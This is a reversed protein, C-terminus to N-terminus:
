KIKRLRRLLTECYDCTGPCYGDLKMQYPNFDYGNSFISHPQHEIVSHLGDNVNGHPAVLLKPLLNIMDELKIFCISKLFKIIMLRQRHGIHDQQIMNQIIPCIDNYMLGYNALIDNVSLEDLIRSPKLVIRPRPKQLKIIEPHYTEQNYLYREYRTNCALKKHEDVTLRVEDETLDICYLSRKNKKENGFNYSGVFRRMMMTSYNDDLRIDLKDILNTMVNRYSLCPIDTKVFVQYGGGTFTYETRYKNTRAFDSLRQLSEWAGEIPINHRIGEKDIFCTELDIDFFLKDVICSEYDVTFYSNGNITYKEELRSYYWPSISVNSFLIYKKIDKIADAYNSFTLRNPERAETYTQIYKDM